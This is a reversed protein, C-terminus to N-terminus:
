SGLIHKLAAVQTDWLEKADDIEDPEAFDTVVLALDGTLEDVNIRFEFFTKDDVDDLWHYRVSRFEKKNIMEAQQEIGDWEFTFIKGQVIVNDAFWENLGGATSLRNFLVRDSSKLPYEIQFKEKAM